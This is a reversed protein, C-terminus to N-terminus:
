KGTRLAEAPIMTSAKSAPARAALITLIGVVLFKVIVSFPSLKWQLHKDFSFVSFASEPSIPIFSIIQLVIIALIFGAVAGLISLLVAEYTFLLKVQWARVGCSRMTGIEGKREHVIMRFTNSLGIMIIILLVALVAISIVNMIMALTTLQTATDLMSAVMYTTGLNKSKKLQRELATFPNQPNEIRAQVLNTVPAYKSLTKELRLAYEAQKKPNQVFVTYFSFNNKDMQKIKNIYSRSCYNKLADLAGAKKTIAEISFECVTAQGTKTKTEFLVIDHLNLKLEAAVDESILLATEKQMNEWSGEKLVISEKLQHATEFDIGAIEAPLSNTEFLITGYDRTSVSSATTKIGAEKIAKEIIETSSLLTDVEEDNINKETREVGSIMLNGGIIKAIQYSLGQLAGTSFGEIFIVVFFAIAVAIALLASRKKQRNLNKFAIKLITM